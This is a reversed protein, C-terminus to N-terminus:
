LPQGKARAICATYHATTQPSCEAKRWIHFVGCKMVYRPDGERTNVFGMKRLTACIDKTGWCTIGKAKAEEEVEETVCMDPRVLPNSGSSLMATVLNELPTRSMDVMDLFAQSSPACGTPDFTPSIKHNLFMSRFAGPHEAKFPQLVSYHTRRAEAIEAPSFLASEIVEYRRSGLDVVLADLENSCGIYNTINKVMRPDHYKRVTEVYEQAIVDKLKDMGAKGSAGHVKLEELAILQYGETFDSWSTDVVTHGKTHKVNSPGLCGRMIEWIVSKGSGEPGRLLPMWYVKKGPHQVLYACFDTLDVRCQPEKCTLEMQRDWLAKAQAELAPEAEQYDARYKNVYQVGDQTVVKDNPHTPDYLYGDVSPIRVNNLLYDWAQVPFFATDEPSTIISSPYM